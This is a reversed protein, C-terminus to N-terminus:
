YGLPLLVSRVYKPEYESKAPTSESPSSDEHPGSPDPAIVGQAEGHLAEFKVHNERLLAEYNRIRNLLEREPFRRKRQRAIM